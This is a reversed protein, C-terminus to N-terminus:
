QKPHPHKRDREMEMRVERLAQTVQELSPMQGKQYLEVAEKHLKAPSHLEEEASYKKQLMKLHNQNM